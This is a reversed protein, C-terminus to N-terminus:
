ETDAEEILRLLTDMLDYMTEFKGIKYALCVNGKTLNEVKEWDEDFFGFKELEKRAIEKRSEAFKKIKDIM